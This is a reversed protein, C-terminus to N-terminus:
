MFVFYNKHLKMWVSIELFASLVCFPLLVQNEKQFSIFSTEGHPFWVGTAVGNVVASDGCPVFQKLTWESSGRQVCRRAKSGVGSSKKTEGVGIM